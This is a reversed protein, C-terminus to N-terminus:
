RNPTVNYLGVLAQEEQVTWEGKNIKPDLHNRWRERCQKYSKHSKLDAKGPVSTWKVTGQPNKSYFELMAAELRADQWTLWRKPKEFTDDQVEVLRKTKRGSTRTIRPVDHAGM